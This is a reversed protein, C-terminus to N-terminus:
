EQNMWCDIFEWGDAMGFDSAWLMFYVGCGIETICFEDFLPNYSIITYSINKLDM